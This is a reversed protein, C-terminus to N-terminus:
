TARSLHESFQIIWREIYEQLETANPGLGPDHTIPHRTKTRKIKIVVGRGDKNTVHASWLLEQKYREPHIILHNRVHNFNKPEVIQLIANCKTQLIRTIDFLRFGFLYFAEAADTADDIAQQLTPKSSSFKERDAEALQQVAVARNVCMWAESYFRDLQRLRRVGESVLGLLLGDPDDPLSCGLLYLPDEYRRFMGRDTDIGFLPNSM